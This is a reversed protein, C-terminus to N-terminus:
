GSVIHQLDLVCAPIESRGLLRFAEVRREGAILEGDPTVVVPNLLGLQEISEALSAVDGLDRRAREGVRIKALEFQFRESAKRTHVRDSPMEQRGCSASSSSGGTRREGTNCDTGGFDKSVEMPKASGPASSSTPFLLESM